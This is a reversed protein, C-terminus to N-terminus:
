RLTQGTFGAIAQGFALATADPDTGDFRTPYAEPFDMGWLQPVDVDDGPVLLRVDHIHHRRLLQKGGAADPPLDALQADSILVLETDCAGARFGDIAQLAPALNTYTGDTAGAAVGAGALKDRRAPPIRAAADAAFDVVALEDDPRLNKRSWDILQALAADRAVAYNTMSGSVDLGVVLRICAPGRPGTLTRHTLDAPGAAAASAASQPHHRPWLWWALLWALLLLLPPLLYIRNRGPSEVFRAPGALSPGDRLIGSM